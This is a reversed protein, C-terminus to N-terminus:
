DEPLHEVGAVQPQYAQHLRLKIVYSGARPVRIPVYVIGADEEDFVVEDVMLVGPQSVYGQRSLPNDSGKVYVAEELADVREELIQQGLDRGRPLPRAVSSGIGPSPLASSDGPRGEALAAIRSDLALRSLFAWALKRFTRVYVSSAEDVRSDEIEILWPVFGEFELALLDRFGKSTRFPVLRRCHEFRQDNKIKTQQGANDVHLADECIPRIPVWVKGPEPAIEKAAECHLTPFAPITMPVYSYKYETQTDASM